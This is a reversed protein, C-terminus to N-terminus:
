LCCFTTPAAPAVDGAADGGGPYCNGGQITSMYISSSHASNVAGCGGTNSLTAVATGTCNSTPYFRTTATCTGVSFGCGCATCTRTDDFTTPNAAAIRRETAFAAPCANDGVRMICQRFAPDSISPACTGADSCGLGSGNSACALAESSYVPPPATGPVGGSPTCSIKFKPAAASASMEAITGYSTCGTQNFASLAGCTSSTSSVEIPQFECSKTPTGCQCASCPVPDFTLDTFGSFVQNDFGAPCTAPATPAVALAVFTWGMPITPVCENAACDTDACDIAQDGDDDAGNLCDEVGPMGSSSSSGTSTSSGSVTTGSSSSTSSASSGGGQSSSSATAKAGGAGGTNSEKYDGLGLIQECGLGMTACVVLLAVNASKRSGM